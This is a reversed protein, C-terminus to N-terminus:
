FAGLGRRHDAGQRGVVARDHGGRGPPTTAEGRDGPQLHQGPGPARRDDMPGVNDTLVTKSRTGNRSNGSGRGGPDHKDYGLHDTMEEDLATELVTKTLAKLMGGPGTMAVGRARASRVLERAIALEEQSPEAVVEAQDLVEGDAAGAVAAEALRPQELLEETNSPSVGALTETM